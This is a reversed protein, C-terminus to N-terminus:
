PDQPSVLVCTDRVGMNGKATDLSSLLGEIVENIKRVSQLENQLAAERGEGHAYVPESDRSSKLEPTTRSENTTTKRNLPKNGRKSPSNWLEETDEDSLELKEMQDATSGLDMTTSLCQSASVRTHCHLLPGRLLDVIFEARHLFLHPLLPLKIPDAVVYGASFFATATAPCIGNCNWGEARGREKRDAKM